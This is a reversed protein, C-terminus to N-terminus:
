KGQVLMESGQLLCLARRHIRSTIKVMFFALGVGWKLFQRKLFNHSNKTQRKTQSLLCLKFQKKTLTKLNETQVASSVISDSHGAVVSIVSFTSGLLAPCIFGGCPLTIKKEALKSPTITCLWSFLVVFPICYQSQTGSSVNLNFGLHACSFELPIYLQCQPSQQSVGGFLHCCDLRYSVRWQSRFNRVGASSAVMWPTTREQFGIQLFMWCCTNAKKKKKWNWILSHFPHLWFTFLKRLLPRTLLQHKISDTLKLEVVLAMICVFVNRVWLAHLLLPKESRIANWFYGGTSETSSSHSGVTDKCLVENESYTPRRCQLTCNTLYRFVFYHSCKMLFFFFCHMAAFTLWAWKSALKYKHSSNVATERNKAHTTAYTGRSM